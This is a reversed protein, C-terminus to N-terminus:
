HRTSQVIEQTIKENKTTRTTHNESQEEYLYKCFNSSYSSMPEKQDLANVSIM